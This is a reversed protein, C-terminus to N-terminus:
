RSRKNVMASPPSKRGLVIPKTRKKIRLPEIPGSPGEPYGLITLLLSLEGGRKEFNKVREGLPEAGSREDGALAAAQAAVPHQGLGRRLQGEEDGVLAITVPKKLVGSRFDGLM